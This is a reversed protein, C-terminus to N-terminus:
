ALRILTSRRMQALRDSFERINTNLLDIIERKNERDLVLQERQKSLRNIERRQRARDIDVVNEHPVIRILQSQRMSIQHDLDQLANTQIDIIDLQEERLTFLNDVGEEIWTNIVGIHEHRLQKMVLIDEPMSILYEYVELWSEERSMFLRDMYHLLLSVSHSYDYNQFQQSVSELIDAFNSATRAFAYSNVAGLGQAYISTIRNLLRLYGDERILGKGSRLLLSIELLMEQLLDIDVSHYQDTLANELFDFYQKLIPCVEEQSMEPLEELQRLRFSTVGSIPLTRENMM